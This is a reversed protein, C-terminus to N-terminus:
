VARGGGAAGGAFLDLHPAGSGAGAAAAAAVAVAAEVAGRDDRHPAAGAAAGEAGAGAASAAGALSFALKPRVPMSLSSAAVPEVYLPRSIFNESGGSADM